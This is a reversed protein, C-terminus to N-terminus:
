QHFYSVAALVRMYPVTRCEGYKWIMCCALYFTSVKGFITWFYQKELSVYLQKVSTYKLTTKIRTDTRM